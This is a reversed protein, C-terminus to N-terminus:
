SEDRKSRVWEVQRRVIFRLYLPIKQLAYAPALLLQGFSLVAFGFRLWALSLALILMALNRGALAM